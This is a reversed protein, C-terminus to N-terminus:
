YTLSRLAKLDVQIGYYICLKVFVMLSPKHVEDRSWRDYTSGSINAGEIVDARCSQKLKLRIIQSALAYDM